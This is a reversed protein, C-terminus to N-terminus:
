LSADVIIKFQHFKQYLISAVNIDFVVFSPRRQMSGGRTGVYFNRLLNSKNKLHQSSTVLVQFNCM